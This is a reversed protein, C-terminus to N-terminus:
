KGQETVWQNYADDPSLGQKYYHDFDQADEIYQGCEGAVSIVEFFWSDFDKFM